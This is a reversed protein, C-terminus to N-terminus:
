ILKIDKFRFQRQLATKCMNIPMRSILEGKDAHSVCPPGLLDIIPKHLSIQEKNLNGHARALKPPLTTLYHIKCLHVVTIIFLFASILAM